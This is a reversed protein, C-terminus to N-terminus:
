QVPQFQERTLGAFAGSEQLTTWLLEKNQASDVGNSANQQNHQMAFTNIFSHM